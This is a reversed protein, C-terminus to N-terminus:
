CAGTIKKRSEREAHYNQKERERRCVVCRRALKGDGIQEFRYSGGVYPHGCHCSGKAANLMGIGFGRRINTEMTVPELHDPNICAPKRCLHDITLGSPIPGVFVEYSVRHIAWKTPWGPVRIRAYGERNVIGAWLWCGNVEQFSRLLRDRMIERSSSNM